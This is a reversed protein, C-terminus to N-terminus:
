ASPRGALWRGAGTSKATREHARPRAAEATPPSSRVRQREILGGLPQAVDAGDGRARLARHLEFQVMRPLEAEPSDLGQAVAVLGAFFGSAEIFRWVRQLPDPAPRPVSFGQFAEPAWEPVGSPKSLLSPAAFQWFLPSPDHLDNLCPSRKGTTGRAEIEIRLMQHPCDHGKCRLEHQKDYVRAIFQSKGRTGVYMTGTEVGEDNRGLVWTVPSPRQGLALTGGNRGVKRRFKGLVQAADVYLDLAVDLRTVRHPRESLWDLLDHWHTADSKLFRIVGGSMSVRDVGRTPGLKCVGSRDPSSYLWQDGTQVGVLGARELLRRFSPLHTEEQPLTFDLWDVFVPQENCSPRMM